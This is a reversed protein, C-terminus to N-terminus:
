SSRYSLFIIVILIYVNRTLVNCIATQPLNDTCVFDFDMKQENHKWLTYLDVYPGETPMVICKDANFPVDNAASFWRLRGLDAQLAKADQTSRSERCIILEDAYPQVNHDTQMSLSNVYTIFLM